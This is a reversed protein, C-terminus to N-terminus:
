VVSKRDRDFRDKQGSRCSLVLHGGQKAYNTWKEILQDDVLQYAPAILVPYKNWDAEENVVDVPAGFSKLPKYYKQIHNDTNWEVTQKQKSMSWTNDVNHLIATKRKTYEAPLQAKPNYLKRLKAIDTIFQQYEM